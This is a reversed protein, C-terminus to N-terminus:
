PGPIPWTVLPDFTYGAPYVINGKDDKIDREVTYTMDVLFTRDKRAPGIAKTENVDEPTFNRARKVLANRDVASSFDVSKAKEELEKLADKEVLDLSHRLHRSGQGPRPRWPLWLFAAILVM